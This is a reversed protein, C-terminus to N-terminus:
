FKSLINQKFQEYMKILDLFYNHGVLPKRSKILHQVVKTFKTFLNVLHEEFMELSENAELEARRTTSVNRM